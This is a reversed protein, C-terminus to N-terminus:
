AEASNSNQLIFSLTAFVMVLSEATYSREELLYKFNKFWEEFYPNAVLLGLDEENVNGCGLDASVCLGYFIALWEFKGHNGCPKRKKPM